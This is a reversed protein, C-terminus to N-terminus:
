CLIYRWQNLDGLVETLLIKNKETYLEQVNNIINIQIEIKNSNHIILINGKCIRGEVTWQVQTYNWNIKYEQRKDKM